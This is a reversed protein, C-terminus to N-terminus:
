RRMSALYRAKAAEVANLTETDVAITRGCECEISAGPWLPLPRTVARGCGRCKVAVCLGVDIVEM